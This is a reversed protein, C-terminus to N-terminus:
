TPRVQIICFSDIWLYRMGLWHCVDIAFRYTESLREVKIADMRAELTDTKTTLDLRPDDHSAWRHSLAVYKGDDIPKHRTDILQLKQTYGQTLNGVTNPKLDLLRSPLFSNQGSTKGLNGCLDDQGLCENLWELPEDPLSESALGTHAMRPNHTVVDSKQLLHPPHYNGYKQLLPGLVRMDIFDDMSDMIGSPKSVESYENGAVFILTCALLITSTPNVEVYYYLSNEFQQSKSHHTSGLASNV